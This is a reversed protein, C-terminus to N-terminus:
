GRDLNEFTPETEITQPVPLDIFVSLRLGRAAAAGAIRKVDEAFQDDPHLPNTMQFAIDAGASSVARIIAGVLGHEAIHEPALLIGYHLSRM